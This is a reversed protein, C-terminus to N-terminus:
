CSALKIGHRRRDLQHPYSSTCTLGESVRNASQIARGSLGAELRLRLIERLKRMPLREASM